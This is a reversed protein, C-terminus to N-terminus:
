GRPRTPGEEIPQDEQVIGEVPDRFAEPTFEQHRELFDKVLAKAEELTAAQAKLKRWTWSTTASASHDAIRIDLPKHKGSKASAPIYEDECYIAACPTEREDNYHASPWSREDFSRYRGTPAESVVWKIKAKAM